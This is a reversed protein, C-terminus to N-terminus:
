GQGYREELIQMACTEHTAYEYERYFYGGLSMYDWHTRRMRYGFWYRWHWIPVPTWPGYQYASV